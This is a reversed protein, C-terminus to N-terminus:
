LDIPINNTVCDADVATRVALRDALFAMYPQKSSEDMLGLVASQYENVLKSERQTPYKATLLTAFINDATKPYECRVSDYQFMKGTAEKTDTTVVIGGNENKIVSVEKINHNYLFSGQGNNLDYIVEPANDSLLGISLVNQNEM